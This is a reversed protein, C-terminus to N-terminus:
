GNVHPGESSPLLVTAPEVTLLDLEAMRDLGDLLSTLQAAAIVLDDPDTPVQSLHRSVSKLFHTSLSGM